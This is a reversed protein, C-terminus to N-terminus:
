NINNIKSYWESSDELMKNIRNVLKHPDLLSGEQLLASEFLQEVATLIFEDNANNNFMKLINRILKHNKNIEFIKKDVGMEKNALRLIKKMSTTMNDDPNVLCAASDTLRKSEKVEIVKDGLIDKIKSLLSSFKLEDDKSLEEFKSDIKDEVDKVNQLSSPDSSDVAKFDFNKFTRLMSMIFEDIPEYFYLVEIGKKKFLEIHPDMNIADRSEGYIYYIEKQGERMRSVYTELSILSKSDQESSSNFRLLLSYKEHNSHDSYGLKFIKGHINWFENYKEPESKAKDLLYSYVNKTVTNSIKNFIANEQLTERSINLPLDESDVVGKVFSLHEPLLKKNKHQILIKRVFLDLGYDNKSVGFFDFNIKPIFLLSNFQIPVDVSNHIIDMPEDADYTLFKYFEVYDEHKISSKPEKWIAPVTNIKENELFIPFSVFNSHKKIINKLRFKDAYDLSDEKLYIEVVSGRMIKEELVTLEYEGLGDSIWQYPPENTKYSKTKIIVKEAVMFVSYFGVGFKGIINNAEEKQENLQKIFDATGSKAITGINTVIEEKTMGIGTDIVKLLKADKNFEIKIEFPLDKDCVEIGRRQELRVKDLADSANSILERLFIERSSYLSHVLIELLQKVEAKFEFKEAKIESM